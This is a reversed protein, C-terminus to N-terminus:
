FNVVTIRIIIKLALMLKEAPDLGNGRHKPNFFDGTSLDENISETM